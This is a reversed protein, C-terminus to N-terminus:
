KLRSIIEEEIQESTFNRGIVNGEKDVLFSAPVLKVNMAAAIDSHWGKLDSIHSPWNMSNDKIANVWEDKTYDISVSVIEFGDRNYENYLDHYSLIQDQSTESWSAWFHILKLDADVELVNLTNDDPTLGEILPISSGPDFSTSKDKIFSMLLLVSFASGILIGVFVKLNQLAKYKYSGRGLM